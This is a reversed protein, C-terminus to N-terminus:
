LNYTVVLSEVKSDLTYSLELFFSYSYSLFLLLPSVEKAIQDLAQEEVSYQSKNQSRRRSGISTAM